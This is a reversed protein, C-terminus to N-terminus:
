ALEMALCWWQSGHMRGHEVGQSHIPSIRKWWWVGDKFEVELHLDHKDEVNGVNGARIPKSNNLFIAPLLVFAFGSSADTFCADPATRREM